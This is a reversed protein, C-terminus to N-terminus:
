SQRGFLQRVAPALQALDTVYQKDNKDVELYVKASPRFGNNGPMPRLSLQKFAEQGTLTELAQKAANADSLLAGELPMVLKRTDNKGKKTQLNAQADAKKVVPQVLQDLYNGSEKLLKGVNPGYRGDSNTILGERALSDMAEAITAGGQLRKRILPNLARAMEIAMEGSEERNRPRQGSLHDPSVETFVQFGVTGNRNLDEKKLMEVDVKKGSNKDLLDVAYINADNNRVPELGALQLIRKGLFEDSDMNEVASADIDKGVLGFQTSLGVDEGQAVFPVVDMQGTVPNMEFKTHFRTENKFQRVENTEEGVHHGLTPM